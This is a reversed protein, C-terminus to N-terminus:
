SESSTKPPATKQFSVSAYETSIKVPLPRDPDPKYNSFDVSTYLLGDPNVQKDSTGFTGAAKEAGGGNGAGQQMEGSNTVNSSEQVVFQAGASEKKNVNAYVDGSTASAGTTQPSAASSKKQVVSYVDGSPATVQGSAKSPSAPPYQTQPKKKNVVAYVAPQNVSTGSVAAEDEGTGPSASHPPRRTYRVEDEKQRRQKVVAVVIIVVAVVVAVAFVIGAIIGVSLGFSLSESAHSQR